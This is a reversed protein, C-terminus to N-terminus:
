NLLWTYIAVMIQKGPSETDKPAKRPLTPTRMMEFRTKYNRKCLDLEGRPFKCMAVNWMNVEEEHDNPVYRSSNAKQKGRKEGGLEDM